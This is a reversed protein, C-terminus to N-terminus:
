HATTPVVVRLSAPDNEVRIPLDGISEGDARAPAPEGDALRIEVSRCRVVEVRPDRLHKGSRAAPLLRLLDRRPAAGIVVVDLLGDTPDADPAIHMGGGFRATNAVALLMAEVSRTDDDVVLEYRWPTVKPLELLTAVTYSWEGTPWRLREARENVTVGFGMTAITLGRRRTGSGDDIALTDLPAPTGTLALAVASTLDSPVDLAGAADNGTGVPVIGLATSSSALANAALHVIGDGGAVLVRESGRLQTLDSM